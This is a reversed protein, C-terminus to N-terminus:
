NPANLNISNKMENLLCCRAHKCDTIVKMNMLKLQKNFDLLLTTIFCTMRKRKNLPTKSITQRAAMM